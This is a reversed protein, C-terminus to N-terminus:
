GLSQGVIMSVKRGDASGEYLGVTIGAVVEVQTGLIPLSTGVTRGLTSGVVFDDLEGELRGDPKGEITRLRSGERVGLM